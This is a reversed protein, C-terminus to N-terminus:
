ILDIECNLKKPHKKYCRLIILLNKLTTIILIIDSRDDVDVTKFLLNDLKKVCVKLGTSFVM